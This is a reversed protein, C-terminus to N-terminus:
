KKGDERGRKGGEWGDGKREMRPRVEGRGNESRWVCQEEGGKGKGKWRGERVRELLVTNIRGMKGKRKRMRRKRRGNLDKSVEEERGGGKGEGGEWIGREKRRKLEKGEEGGGKKREGGM